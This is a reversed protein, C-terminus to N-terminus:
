QAGAAARGSPTSKSHLLKRAARQAAVVCILLAPSIYFLGILLMGGLGYYIVTKNEAVGGAVIKALAEAAPSDRDKPIVKGVRVITVDLNRYHRSMTELFQEQIAKLAGYVRRNPSPIVALASSIFVVRLRRGRDQADKVVALILKAPGSIDVDACDPYAEAKLDDDRFSSTLSAANIILDAGALPAYSTVANTALGLDHILIAATKAGM